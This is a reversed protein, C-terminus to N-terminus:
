IDLKFKDRVCKVYDGTVLASYPTQYTVLKCHNDRAWDQEWNVGVAGADSFSKMRGCGLEGEVRVSLYKAFEKFYNARNRAQETESGKGCEIGGNIINTTLGFGLKLGRLKDGAGPSWDGEIVGLMSPKPPQPTAFFWIASALNLWTDRVLDPNDLLPRTDGYMAASFQGYNYNYSLQKAGRGHYRQWEGDARKGCPWAKATWEGGACNKSYGCDRQDCGLEEIYHLGQRWQPVGGSPNHAGTEQTFHAFMTALVQRCVAESDPHCVAPFKSVAKLFNTYTYSEHRQPFLFDWDKEQIISEVLKTNAPNAARGPRVLEVSLSDLTNLRRRLKRIEGQGTIRAEEARVQVITPPGEHDGPPPVPPAPAPDQGCTSLHLWVCAREVPDFSHHAPCSAAVPAGAECRFYKLCDGPYPYQGDCLGPVSPSPELTNSNEESESSTQVSLGSSGGRYKSKATDYGILFAIILALVCGLVILCVKVPGQLQNPIKAWLGILNECFNKKHKQQPRPPLPPLYDPDQHGQRLGQDGEM